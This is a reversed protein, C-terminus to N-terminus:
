QELPTEGGQHEGADGCMPDEHHWEEGQLSAAEAEKALGLAQPGKCAHVTMAKDEEKTKTLYGQLRGRENKGEIDIEFLRTSVTRSRESKRRDNHCDMCEKVTHPGVVHDTGGFPLNM